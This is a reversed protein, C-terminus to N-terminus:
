FYRAIRRAFHKAFYICYKFHGTLLSDRSQKIMTDIRNRAIITEDSLDHPVSINYYWVCNNQTYQDYPSINVLLFHLKIMDYLQEFHGTPTRLLIYISKRYLTSTHSLLEVLENSYPAVKIRRYIEYLQVIVISTETASCVIGTPLNIRNIITQISHLIYLYTYYLKNAIKQKSYTSDCIFLLSSYEPNDCLTMDINIDDHILHLQGKSTYLFILISIYCDLKDGSLSRCLERYNITCVKDPNFISCLDRETNIVFKEIETLHSFITDLVDQPLVVFEGRNPTRQTM